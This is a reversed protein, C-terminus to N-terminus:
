PSLLPRKQKLGDFDSDFRRQIGGTRELGIPFTQPQTEDLGIFDKGFYNSIKGADTELGKVYRGYVDYVMKRSSHGMLDVLRDKNMSITLSWAAFTHRTSYPVKYELGAKKIASTWPNKRFSDVDFIRGSKMTFPREGNSRALVVKLRDNIAKTLTLERERYQTKLETKEHNRVISNRIRIEDEAIDKMRLGAIESGIMGTMVMIEAIPRFFPDMCELVTMWEDFRWVKPKQIKRKTLHKHAFRIPDPLDWRYEECADEFIAKLPILINRQRSASLKQGKKAGKRWVMKGILEKVTVGTIQHFTKGSLHPLLWDDIVQNYDRQKNVSECQDVFKKRWEGVYQGFVIENPSPMYEMGELKAFVAKEKSSAGPFAESFQFTGAEIKQIQRDLWQEAKKRNVPTDNLGM